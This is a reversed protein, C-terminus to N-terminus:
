IKNNFLNIWDLEINTRSFSLAKNHAQQGMYTRLDYNDILKIITDAMHKHNREKILYGNLSDDIIENAGQASDFAVCPVGFSMAEILVLGFSETFSTMMYISTNSLIQNINDKRVFGHMTIKDNLNNDNIKNIISEKEIGDGVINLHWDPKITSVLKFVSILDLFGKEKSLRGIATIEKSDLKSLQEPLYDLAPYICKCIVKQPVIQEYFTNLDKSVTILYNMNKCSDILNKIYKENNNHHNHEWAIKIINSRAYKGVLHNHIARTSIIIDSDIDKIADIMLKKKLYLVRISILVEKILAIIKIKKIAAFLEKRNPKLSTLYTIKVNSNIFFAPQDYLKYVSIINIEYKDCLMNALSAILQEVGGYGLHLAVITIKKM